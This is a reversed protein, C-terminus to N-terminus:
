NMWRGPRGPRVDAMEAPPVCGHLEAALGGLRAVGRGSRGRSGGLRDTGARVVDALDGVVDFPDVDAGEQDSRHVATVQTQLHVLLGVLDRGYQEGTRVTRDLELDEGSGPGTSQPVVDTRLDRHVDGLAVARGGLTVAGEAGFEHAADGGGAGVPGAADLDRPHDADVARAPHQAGCEQTAGATSGSSESSHSCASESTATRRPAPAM